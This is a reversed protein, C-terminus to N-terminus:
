ALQEGPPPALVCEYSGLGPIPRLVGQHVLAELESRDQETMTHGVLDAPKAGERSSSARLWKARAGTPLHRWVQLARQLLEESAARSEELFSAPLHAETLVKSRLERVDVGACFSSVAAAFADPDSKRVVRVHPVQPVLKSGDDSPSGPPDSEPLFMLADRLRLLLTEGLREAIEHYSAAVHGQFTVFEHAFGAKQPRLLDIWHQLDIAIEDANRQGPYDHNFSRADFVDPHAKRAHDWRALRGITTVIALAARTAESEETDDKM